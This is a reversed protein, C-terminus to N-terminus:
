LEVSREREGTEAVLPPFNDGMHWEDDEFIEDQVDGSQAEALVANFYQLAKVVKVVYHSKAEVPDNAFNPYAPDKKVVQFLDELVSDRVKISTLGRLNLLAMMGSLRAPNASRACCFLLSNRTELIKRALPHTPEVTGETRLHLEYIHNRLEPSLSLFPFGGKKRRPARGKLKRGMLKPVIQTELVGGPIPGGFEEGRRKVMKVFEVHGIKSLTRLGAIGPAQMIALQQQPTPDDLGFRQDAQDGKGRGLERKLLAKEDVRIRLNALAKLRRLSMFNETAYTDTWTIIVRRILKLHRPHTIHTVSQLRGGTLFENQGYYYPAAEKEINESLTLIPPMFYKQHRRTTSSYGVITRHKADDLYSQYAAISGEPNGPRMSLPALWLSLSKDVMFNLVSKMKGGLMPIRAKADARSVEVWGTDVSDRSRKPSGFDDPPHM